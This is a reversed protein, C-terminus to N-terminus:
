RQVGRRLSKTRAITAEIRERLKDDFTLAEKIRTVEELMKEAKNYADALHAQREAFSEVIADAKKLSEQLADVQVSGDTIPEPVQGIFVENPSVAPAEGVYVENQSLAPADGIYVENKQFGVAARDVASDSVASNTFQNMRQPGSSTSKLVGDDGRSDDPHKKESM